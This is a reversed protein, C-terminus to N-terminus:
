VIPTTRAFRFCGSPHVRKQHHRDLTRAKRQVTSSEPATRVHTMGSIRIFEKFNKAITQPANDSIIGPFAAPFKEKARQLLIEVEAETVSERLNWDIRYRSTGKLVACRYYFTGLINIHSIDIHWHEHPQLPQGVGKGTKSTKNAWRRLRGAQRLM